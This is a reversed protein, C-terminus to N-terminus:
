EFPPLFFSCSRSHTFVHLLQEICNNKSVYKVEELVKAKASMMYNFLKKKIIQEAFNEVLKNRKM